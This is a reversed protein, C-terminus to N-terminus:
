EREQNQQIIHYGVTISIVAALLVDTLWHQDNYIRGIASITALLFWFVKWLKNNILSAAIVSFAFATAVDGSPLSLHDNPGLTFPVFSYSGNGTYPRWRGLISKIVTVIIGSILFSEFFKLGIKRINEKKIIIGLLYFLIISFFILYPKGYFHGISVIFDNTNNHLKSFLDRVLPDFFFLLCYAIIISATLLYNKKVLRLLFSPLTKITGYLNQFDKKLM